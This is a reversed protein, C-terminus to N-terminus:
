LNLIQQPVSDARIGQVRKSDIQAVKAKLIDARAREQSLEKELNSAHGKVFIRETEFKAFGYEFRSDFQSQMIESTREATM